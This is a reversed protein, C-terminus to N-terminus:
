HPRRDIIMDGGAGYVDGSATIRQHPSETLEDDRGRLYATTMLQIVSAWDLKSVGSILRTFEKVRATGALTIVRERALEDRSKGEYGM